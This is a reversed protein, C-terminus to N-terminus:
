QRSSPRLEWLTGTSSVYYFRGGFGPTVINGPAPGSALVRSAARTRGTAEDLWLTRDGFLLNFNPVVINRDEPGGVLASFDLTAERRRWRISLGGDTDLHVGAMQGAVSDNTIIMHNDNDLAAKSPNWSAHSGPFPTISFHRSSDRVDAATVTLPEFSPLFNTQIVIYDGLIGPGTGPMQAGTRYTVPGWDTDFKLHGGAYHYRFLSSDGAAYIYDRGDTRGATIRGTSPEPPNVATLITLDNPDITVITSPLKNHAACLLGEFAEQSAPADPALAPCPGREIGKAVIRGDPMVIMGNYGAGTQAPDQPLERRALTAGTSPDLKVLVNAYIAYIFGNGHALAVGPYSWQNPIQNALIQTRWREGLTSTDVRSVFGGQTAADRGYGYVYLEDRDRTFPIYPTSFNVPSSRAEIKSGGLEQLSCAFPFTQTRNSHYHEFPSVTLYFAGDTRGTELVASRPCPDGESWSAAQAGDTTQALLSSSAVLGALITGALRGLIAQLHMHARGGLGALGLPFAQIHGGGLTVGEQLGSRANQTQRGSSRKRFNRYKM